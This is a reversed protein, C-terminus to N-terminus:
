VGKRGRTIWKVATEYPGVYFALEIEALSGELRPVPEYFGDVPLKFIDHATRWQCEVQSPTHNHGDKNSRKAADRIVMVGWWQQMGWGKSIM